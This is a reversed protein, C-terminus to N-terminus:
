NQNMEELAQMAAVAQDETGFTTAARFDATRQLRGWPDARYDSHQAVGAMGDFYAKAAMLDGYPAVGGGGRHFLDPAVAHYGEAAARRVVDAIHDTM